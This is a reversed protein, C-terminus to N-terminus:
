VKEIRNIKKVLEDLQNNAETFNSIVINKMSSKPNLYVKGVKNISAIEKLKSVITTITGIINLKM